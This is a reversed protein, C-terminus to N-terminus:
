EQILQVLPRYNNTGKLTSIFRPLSLRQLVPLPFGSGRHHIESNSWPCCLWSARGPRRTGKWLRAMEWCAPPSVTYAFTRFCEEGLHWLGPHLQWTLGQGRSYGPLLLDCLSCVAERSKKCVLWLGLHERWTMRYNQSMRDEWTSVSGGNLQELLLQLRLREQCTGLRCAEGQLFCHITILASNRSERDGSCAFIDIRWKQLPTKHCSIFQSRSTCSRSDWFHTWRLLM